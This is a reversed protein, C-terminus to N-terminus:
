DLVRMRKAYCLVGKKMEHCILQLAIHPARNPAVVMNYNTGFNTKTASHKLVFITLAASVRVCLCASMCLDVSALV